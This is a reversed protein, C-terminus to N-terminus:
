LGVQAGIIVTRDTPLGFHEVPSAANRNMAIFLKKRLTLLPPASTPTITIQSVFYAAALGSRDPASIGATPVSGHQPHVHRDRGCRLKPDPM